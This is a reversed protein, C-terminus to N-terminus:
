YTTIIILNSSCKLLLLRLKENNMALQTLTVPDNMVNEILGNVEGNLPMHQFKMQFKQFEAFSMKQKLDNPRYNQYMTPHLNGGPMNPINPFQNIFFNRFSENEISNNVSNENQHGNQQL